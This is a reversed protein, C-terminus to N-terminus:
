LGQRLGQDAPQGHGAGLEAGGLFGIADDKEAPLTSEDATFASLFPISALGAQRYQKVLNVGMGGPMFTFFAEPKDAAIKALEASFDLQGLPTYVEDVIEGKFDRKFGALADKGAQYNPALLFASKYGKDQAYKGLVEHVQDNQYSTVFM